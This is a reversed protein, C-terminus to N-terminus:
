KDNIINCILNVVEDISLNTTDVLIADDAKTLPASERCLDMKDRKDIDNQVNALQVAETKGKIEKFRRKARVDLEADLYFKKDADPFIVTGIDRGEVVSDYGKACDKQLKVLKERVFSKGSILSVSNTVERSRIESSVEIGDLFVSLKGDSKELKIETNDLLRCIEDQGDLSLGNQLVKLTVTRYIAGTDIYKFNLKEALLKSVTSKGSGAPGDIAIIM